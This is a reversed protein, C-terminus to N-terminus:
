HHLVPNNHYCYVVVSHNCSSPPGLASKMLQTNTQPMYEELELLYLCSTRDQEEEHIYFYGLM